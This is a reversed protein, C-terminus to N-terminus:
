EEKSDLALKINSYSFGKSVLYRTVKIREKLNKLDKKYYKKFIIKKIRDIEDPLQEMIKELLDKSINHNSKLLTKIYENGFKAGKLNIFSIAFREDSLYKNYKLKSIIEIIENETCERQILKERMEKESYERRSLLFIAYEFPKMRAM